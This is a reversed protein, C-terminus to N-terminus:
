PSQYFFARPGTNRTVYGVVKRSSNVGQPYTGTGTITTFPSGTTNGPLWIMGQDVGGMNAWGVTYGNSSMATARSNHIATTDVLAVPPVTFISSTTWMAAATCPSGACTADMAGVVNAGGNGSGYAIANGGVAPNATISQMGANPAASAFEAVGYYIFAWYPRTAAVVLGGDTVVNVMYDVPGYVATKSFGGYDIMPGNPLQYSFAHNSPNSCCNDSTSSSVGVVLGSPTIANAVADNGSLAGLDVVAYPAVANWAVAHHAFGPGDSYGVIQGAANIAHAESTVGGPLTGLDIIQGNHWLVAHRNNSSNTSWGVIDGGDNVGLAQSQTGGPLLPLEGPDNAPPPNSALAAVQADTLAGTYVRVEDLDGNHYEGFTQFQAGLRTNDGSTTTGIAAHTAKLVGDVFLKTTNTQTNVVMAYHHFIGDAGAAPVGTGTWSDTVRINRSPDHGLYFGPGGTLGQSIWEVYGTQATRHRAFLAVSYSGATPVIKSSFQAYQNTGNLTLRGGSVTAGNILTANATGALDTVGSAFDYYHILTAGPDTVTIQVTGQAGESTATITVPGGPAVATIVGTSSVTALSPNSSSWTVTRGTLINGNVDKLTVTAQQTQGVNMSQSPTTVTVTSVRAGTCAGGAGNAVAAIAWPTYTTAPLNAPMNQPGTTGWFNCRLNAASTNIKDAVTFGTQYDTFDNNNVTLAGTSQANVNGSLPTLTTTIVNDHVNVPDNSSM